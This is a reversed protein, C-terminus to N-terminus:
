LTASAMLAQDIARTLRKMSGGVHDAHGSGHGDNRPQPPRRGNKDAAFAELAAAVAAGDAARQLGFQFRAPLM